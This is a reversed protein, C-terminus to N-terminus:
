SSQEAVNRITGFPSIRNNGGPTQRRCVSCSSFVGRPFMTLRSIEGGDISITLLDAADPSHASHSFVLHRSGPLWAVCFIFGAPFSTVRRPHKGEPDVLNLQYTDFLSGGTYALWRGDPSWQPCQLTRM